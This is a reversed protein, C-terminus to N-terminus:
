EIQSRSVSKWATLKVDEIIVIKLDEKDTISAQSGGMQFGSQEEISVEVQRNILSENHANSGRIGLNVVRSAYFPM